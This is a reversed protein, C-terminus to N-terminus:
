DDSLQDRFHKADKASMTEINVVAEHFYGRLRRVRGGNTRLIKRLRYLHVWGTEEDYTFIDEKGVIEDLELQEGDYPGGYIELHKRKRKAM